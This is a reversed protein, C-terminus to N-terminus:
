NAAIHERRDSVIVWASQSSTTPDPTQSPTPSSPPPSVPSEASCTYHPAPTQDDEICSYTIGAPDTWTWGAPDPGPDGQPGSPGAPGAVGPDGQAGTNGTAGAAGAPGAPAPNAAMYTAVADSIQAQTPGPGAAPPNAELYVAVASTVESAPVTGSPPHEILYGDVDAQVQADSPGPGPAGAPGAPGATLQDPPPAAPTIGHNKLQQETTTLGSSLSSITQQQGASQSQLRALQGSEEIGFWAIAVVVALGLLGVVGFALHWGHRGIWGQM